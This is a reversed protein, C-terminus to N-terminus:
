GARRRDSRDRLAVVLDERARAVRSRITGVPCGCIEAAEAYSLGAVQTLVFAERREEALGRVLEILAHQEEFRPRGHPDAREASSEWDPVTASRPRRVARRVHDAAARRAISFLWTRVTSRGAFEPLARVARLYTEQALDEVETAPALTGLFRVVDHQTARILETLADRDGRGAALALPALADPVPRGPSTAALRGSHNM